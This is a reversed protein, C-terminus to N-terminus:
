RCRAHNELVCYSSQYKIADLGGDSPQTPAARALRGALGWPWVITGAAGMSITGAFRGNVAVEGIDSFRTIMLSLYIMLGELERDESVAAM